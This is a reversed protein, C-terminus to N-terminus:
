VSYDPPVQQAGTIGAQWWALLKDTCPKCVDKTPIGSLTLTAMPQVNRGCRDCFIKTM